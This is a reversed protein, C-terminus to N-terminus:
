RRGPEPNGARAQTLQGHQVFLLFRFLTPDEDHAQCFGRIMAALKGHATTEANALADLRGAFEVYHREFVAWM